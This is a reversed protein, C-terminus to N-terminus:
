NRLKISTSLKIAREGVFDEGCPNNKFTTVDMELIRPLGSEVKFKLESVNSVIVESEQGQRGPIRVVQNNNLSYAINESWTIDGNNDISQPIQFTISDYCNSDPPISLLSVRSQAIEEEMVRLVVRAKQFLDTKISNTYFLARGVYVVSFVAGLIISVIVACVLIEILTFGKRM